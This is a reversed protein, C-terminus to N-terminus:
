GLSNLLLQKKLELTSFSNETRSVSNKPLRSPPTMTSVAILTRARDQSATHDRKVSVARGGELAKASILRTAQQEQGLAFSL